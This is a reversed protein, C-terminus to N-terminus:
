AAVRLAYSPIFLRSDSAHNNPLYTQYANIRETHNLVDEYVQIATEKVFMDWFLGNDKPAYSVLLPSDFTGLEMEQFREELYVQVDPSVGYLKEVLVRSETNIDAPVLWKQNYNRILELFENRKYLNMFRSLRQISKKVCIGHTLTIIRDAFPGLIPCNPMECKLSLAKARLLQLRTKFNAGIYQQTCWGFKLLTMVPDRVTHKVDSFILGCFSAENIGDFEEIILNFGLARAYVDLLKTYCSILTDDGEIVVEVKVGMMFATFLILMLNTFGNGVSTSMEGSMRRSLIEVMFGSFCLKNNLLLQKYLRMFEGGTPLNQTMYEFLPVECSEM